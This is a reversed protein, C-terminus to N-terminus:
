ERTAKDALGQLAEAIKTITRGQAEIGYAVATAEPNNFVVYVEGDENEYVLMKQPLELGILQNEQMLPTGLKPNGFLIVKTPRLEMDANKKANEAHDLEAIITIAEIQGIASKLNAYTEDFSNESKVSTTKAKAANDQASSPLTMAASIALLLFSLHLTKM